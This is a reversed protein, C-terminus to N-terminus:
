RWPEPRIEGFVPTFSCFGRAVANGLMLLKSSLQSELEAAGRGKLSHRHGGSSLCMAHVNRLGGYLTEFSRQICCSKTSAKRPFGQTLTDCHCTPDCTMPTLFPVHKVM